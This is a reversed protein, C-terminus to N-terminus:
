LFANLLLFFVLQAIAYVILLPSQYRIKFYHLPLSFAFAIVGWALYNQLPIEGAHWQWYDLQIAVPEIAVDYAVILASAVLSIVLPHKFWREALDNMALILLAWNLAIVFPVGLWQAWMTDGYHYEGFVLGTAVGIAETAFTGIYTVATWLWLRTDQQRQYILYLLGVCVVLLLPDTTYLTVPYVAPMLHAQVGSLFSFILLVAVGLELPSMASAEAWSLWRSKIKQKAQVM